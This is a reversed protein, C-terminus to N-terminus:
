NVRRVAQSATQAKAGSYLVISHIIKRKGPVSWDKGFDETVKVNGRFSSWYMQAMNCKEGPNQHKAPSAAPCYLMKEFSTQMWLNLSSFRRVRAIATGIEISTCDTPIPASTMFFHHKVNRNRRTTDRAINWRVATKAETACITEHVLWCRLVVMVFFDIWVKAENKAYVVDPFFPM